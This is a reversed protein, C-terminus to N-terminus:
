LHLNESWFQQGSKAAIPALGLEFKKRSDIVTDSYGIKLFLNIISITTIDM